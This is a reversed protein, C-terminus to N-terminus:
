KEMEFYINARAAGLPMESHTINETNFHAM